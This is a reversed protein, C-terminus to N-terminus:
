TLQGLPEDVVVTFATAETPKSDMKTEVFGLTFSKANKLHAAYVTLEKIFRGDCIISALQELKHANVLPTFQLLSREPSIAKPSAYSNKVLPIIRM